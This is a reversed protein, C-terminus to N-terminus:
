EITDEANKNLGLRMRMLTEFMSLIVDRDEKTFKNAPQNGDYGAAAVADILTNESAEIFEKADYKRCSHKNGAFILDDIGKGLDCDWLVVSINIEKIGNKLYKILKILAATVQPNKILDADYFVCVKPEIEQSKIIKKFMPVMGKYNNVGQVSFTNFGNQSLIESKFRGETIAFRSSKKAAPRYDIVTGINGGNKMVGSGEYKGSMFIYRSAKDKVNDMRVQIAQALGKEDRLLIGLGRFSMYSLEWKDKGLNEMFFGPVKSIQEDTYKDGLKKKMLKVTNRVSSSITFYDAKIREDSLHRKDTLKKLHEDSLSSAEKFATYVEHYMLKKEDTKEELEETAFDEENNDSAHHAKVEYKVGSLEKFKEETILKRDCAIQLAAEAYTKNLMKAVSKVVGGGNECAFCYCSNREPTIVFSGIHNDMHFPCLALIRNGRKFAPKVGYSKLVSMIPLEGVTQILADLEQTESEYVWGKRYKM